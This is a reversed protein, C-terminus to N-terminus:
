ENLVSHVKRITLPISHATTPVYYGCSPLITQGQNFYIYMWQNQAKL